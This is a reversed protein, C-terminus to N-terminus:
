MRGLVSAIGSDVLGFDGGFDGGNLANRFNICSRSVGSWSKFSLDEIAISSYCPICAFFSILLIYGDYDM